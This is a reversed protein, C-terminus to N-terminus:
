RRLLRERLWRLDEVRLALAAVVYVSVRCLGMVVPALPNRKHSVDYLVICAALALGGFLPAPSGPGAALLGLGAGMM